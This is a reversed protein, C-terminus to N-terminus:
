SFFTILLHFTTSREAKYGWFFLFFYSLYDIFIYRFIGVQILVLM